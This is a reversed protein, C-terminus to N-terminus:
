QLQKIKAQAEALKAEAKALEKVRQKEKLGAQIDAWSTDIQQRGQGKYVTEFAGSDPRYGSWCTYDYGSYRGYGTSWWAKGWAVKEGSTGDIVTVEEIETDGTFSHPEGDVLETPVQQLAEELTEVWSSSEWFSLCCACRYGNTTEVTIQYAM